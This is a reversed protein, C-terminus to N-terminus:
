VRCRENLEADSLRVYIPRLASASSFHGAEFNRVGLFGVYPALPGVDPLFKFRGEGTPANPNAGHLGESVARNARISYYDILLAAGSGAFTIIENFQNTRQLLERPTIHIPGELETINEDEDVSLLQSFLEGRGAHILSVVRRSPGAALAIAHLTPVGVVPRELTEAFSQITAIGARLGTFSGPGIAITFLEVEELRISARQLIEDIDRLISTSSKEGKGGQQLSLVSVGSLLAVSREKTASDVSLTILTKDIKENDRKGSM